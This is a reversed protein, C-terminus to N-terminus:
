ESEIRLPFGGAVLKLVPEGNEDYDSARTLYGESLRRDRTSMQVEDTPLEIARWFTIEPDPAVMVGLAGTSFGALNETWHTGCDLTFKGRKVTMDIESYTKDTSKASDGRYEVLQGQAPIADALRKWDNM